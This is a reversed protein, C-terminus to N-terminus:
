GTNAALSRHPLEAGPRLYVRGRLESQDLMGGPKSSHSTLERSQCVVRHVLPSSSETDLELYIIAVAIDSVAALTLAYLRFRECEPAHPRRAYKFARSQFPIQSTRDTRPDDFAEPAGYREMHGVFVAGQLRKDPRTPVSEQPAQGSAHAAYYSDCAIHTIPDVRGPAAPATSNDPSSTASRTTTSKLLIGLASQRAATLAPRSSTRTTRQQVCAVAAVIARTRERTSTPRLNRDYSNGFQAYRAKKLRKDPRTCQMTQMERTLDRNVDCLELPHSDHAAAAAVVVNKNTNISATSPTSSRQILVHLINLATIFVNKKANM